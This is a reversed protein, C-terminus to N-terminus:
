AECGAWWRKMPSCVLGSTASRAATCNRISDGHDLDDQDPVAHLIAVLMLGMPQDFDLLARVQPHDLIAAPQRLDEQIATAFSNGALIRQSHAVAVPDIDVYVVRADSAAEQAIEHVNGVTPIGSGIDLFQRVGAQVMFRVARHMFQRNARATLRMDPM